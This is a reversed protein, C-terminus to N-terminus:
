EKNRRRIDYNEYNQSFIFGEFKACKENIQEM